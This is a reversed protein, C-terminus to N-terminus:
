PRDDSRAHANQSIGDFVGRMWNRIIGGYRQVATPDFASAPPQELDFNGHDRGRVLTASARWGARTTLHAPIYRIAQGCRRPGSLNPTSGHVLLVHHLSMEGPRLVIDVASAEDVEALVRERGPLMANRDGTDAHPLLAHHTCPSVRMCGNAPLSPTFAVWATLAEPASLGWYTADQHWPVHHPEGPRKDFFGAAWCLLDPGLLDEVPDLIRTNHVLEWLFPILLHAKINQTPALRGAGKAEIEALWALHRAMEAESMVSLPSLFGDQRYRDGTETDLRGTARVAVASDPLKPGDM